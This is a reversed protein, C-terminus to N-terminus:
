NGTGDGVVLLQVAARRCGCSRSGSATVALVRLRLVGSWSPHRGQDLQHRKGVDADGGLFEVGGAPAPQGRGPVRAESPGVRRRHVLRHQLQAAQQVAVAEGAPDEGAAACVEHPCPRGIDISQGRVPHDAAYTFGLEADAAAAGFEDLGGFELDDVVARL